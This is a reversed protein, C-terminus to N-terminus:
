KVRLVVRFGVDNSANTPTSNFRSHSAVVFESASNGWGGGRLVKTLKGEVRASGDAPANDYRYIYDDLTWEWANGCIDYLGWANPELKGVGHPEAKSNRTTWAYKDLQDASDGFYFYTATGARCAYEWESESPLDMGGGAWDCYAKANRWSIYIIPFNDTTPMISKKRFHRVYLDYAPDVDKAGDYSKADAMFQKYQGNTVETQGMYFPYSITVEHAPYCNSYGGPKSNGMQFSGPSILVLTIGSKQHVVKDAYGGDAAKAGEAPVCGSPVKMEQCWACSAAFVLLACVAILRRM